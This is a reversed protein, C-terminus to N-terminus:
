KRGERRTITREEYSPEEEAQRRRAQAPRSPPSPLLVPMDRVVGEDRLPDNSTSSIWTVM